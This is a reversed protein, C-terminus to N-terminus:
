KFRFCLMTIDDFQEAEGAFELIRNYVGKIVKEPKATKMEENMVYLLRNEGFLRENVDIAETVGDTYLFLCAGEDLRITNQEYEILDSVGLMPFIKPAKLYEFESSKKIMLLPPNHGGSVYTMERTKLNIVATFLTVFMGEKNNDCLQLNTQTVVNALDNNDKLM